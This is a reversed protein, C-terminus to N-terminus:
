PRQEDLLKEAEDRRAPNNFDWPEGKSKTKTLDLAMGPMMGLRPHRAATATVRPASYVESVIARLRNSAERHIKPGSQGLSSVTVQSLCAVCVILIFIRFGVRLRVIFLVILGFVVILDSSGVIIAQRLAM